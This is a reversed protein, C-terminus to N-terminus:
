SEKIFIAPRNNWLKTKLKRYGNEKITNNFIKSINEQHIIDNGDLYNYFHGISRTNFANALILVRPNLNLVEKLHELPREIHEFYESAFIIDIDKLCDINEIMNFDYKSSMLECFDWQKTGKINTGYVNCKPFMQKLCSTTIGLGCGMDLINKCGFLLDTLSISDSINNKKILARLYKRSYIIWCSWLDTFYYENDYVSYDIKNNNLGEYWQNEMSQLHVLEDRKDSNGNYYKITENILKLSKQKDVNFLSCYDNLFDELLEKPKKEYLKMEKIKKNEM